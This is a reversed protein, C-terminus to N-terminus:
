RVRGVAGFASSRAGRHLPRELIPLPGVLAGRGGGPLGEGAAAASRPPRRAPRPRGTEVVRAVEPYNALDIPRDTLAADDSTAVVAGADGDLMVISRSPRWSRPWWRPSTTCSRSSTWASGPPPQHGAAIATAASATSSAPRPPSASIGARPGGGGRPPLAQRHLRRGRGGAGPGPSGLQLPGDARDGPPGVDGARHAPCGAPHLRGHAAHEPDLLLLDPLQADIAELAEEGDAATVVTLGARALVRSLLERILRDDDAVLVRNM